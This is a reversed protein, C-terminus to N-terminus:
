GRIIKGTFVFCVKPGELAKQPRISGKVISGLSELLDHTSTASLAVRFSLRSRRCSLTYALSDLINNDNSSTQQLYRKLDAALRSIGGENGHTLIFLRRKEHSYEGRKWIPLIKDGRIEIGNSNCRRDSSAENTAALGSKSYSESTAVKHHHVHSIATLYDEPAELIVHANTGGYGFSNM